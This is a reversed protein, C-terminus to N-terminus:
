APSFMLHGHKAILFFTKKQWSCATRSCGSSVTAIVKVMGGGVVLEVVVVAVAVFAFAVM